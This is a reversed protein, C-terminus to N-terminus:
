GAPLAPVAPWVGGVGMVAAASLLAAADTWEVCAGYSDGSHGGLRRGLWLPVALAPVVGTGGALVLWPGAAGAWALTAAMLVLLLLATPRLERALGSWHRRHFAATGQPRLYPFRAMAPLPAVRGWVAAWILLPPAM